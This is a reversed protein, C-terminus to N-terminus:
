NLTINYTTGLITVTALNDCLGNGFNITRTPKTSPVMEIIGASIWQCDRKRQLPQLINMTFSNGAKSGSASGIIEFVDDAKVLTSEGQTWTRTRTSNWSISDGTSKIILGNVVITFYTQNATNLGMNTVTKSGTVHHDNVFYSDFQITHVSGAMKYQGTYSILIKGRRYRNDNCLCNSSGFDITITKPSALTDHTVTACNSATKYDGLNGGSATESADDAIRLVDNFTGEALTNDKALETDMDKVKEKRNCAFTVLIGFLSIALISLQIRTNKM